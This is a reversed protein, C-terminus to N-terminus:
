NTASVPTRERSFTNTTHKEKTHRTGVKLINSVLLFKPEKVYTKKLDM